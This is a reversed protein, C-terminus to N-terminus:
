STPTAESACADSTRLRRTGIHCSSCQRHLGAQRQSPGVLQMAGRVRAAWECGRVGMLVYVCVHAGAVRAGGWVWGGLLDGGIGGVVKGRPTINHREAM